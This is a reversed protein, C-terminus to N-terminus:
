DRPDLISNSFILSSKKWQTSPALSILLCHCVASTCGQTPVQSHSCHVPHRSIVVAWWDVQRETFSWSRAKCEAWRWSFMQWRSVYSIFPSLFIRRTEHVAFFVFSHTLSPITLCQWLLSALMSHDGMLFCPLQRSYYHWTCDLSSSWWVHCPHVVDLRPWSEGHFLWDSHCLVSIFPSLVDMTHGVTPDLVCVSLCVAWLYIGGTALLVPLLLSGIRNKFFLVLQVLFIASM